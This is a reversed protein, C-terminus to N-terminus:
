EGTTEIVNVTFDVILTKALQRLKGTSANSLGRVRRSTADARLAQEIRAPTVEAVTENEVRNLLGNDIAARLKAMTLNQDISIANRAAIEALNAVMREPQKEMEVVARQLLPVLAEFCRSNAALSAPAAVVAHPYPSWGTEALFQWRTTANASLWGAPDALFNGFQVVAASATVQSRTVLNTGTLYAVVPDDTSGLLTVDPDTTLDALSRAEPNFAANWYLIRDDHLWPAALFVVPSQSRRAVAVDSPLVGIHISPDTRLLDAVTQEPPLVQRLEIRIGTPERTSPHVMQAIYGTGSGIGDIALMTTWPMAWLDLPGAMQVVLTEPCVGRLVPGDPTTTSAQQVDDPLAKTTTTVFIANPQSDDPNTCGVTAALM